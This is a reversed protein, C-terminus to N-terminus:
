VKLQAMRLDLRKFIAEAAMLSLSDPSSLEGTAPPEPEPGESESESEESEAKDKRKGLQAELRPLTSRYIQTHPVRILGDGGEMTEMNGNHLQHFDGYEVQWGMNQDFVNHVGGVVQAEVEPPVALNPSIGPYMPLLNVVSPKMRISEATQPNTVGKGPKSDALEVNQVSRSSSYPSSSATHYGIAPTNHVQLPSKDLGTNSATSQGGLDDPSPMGLLTPMRQSLQFQQQPITHTYQVDQVVFNPVFGNVLQQQVPDEVGMVPMGMNAPPYLDVKHDQVLHSMMSVQGQQAQGMALKLQEREEKFEGVSRELRNIKATMNVVLSELHSIYEKRRLRFHRASVRNRLQRRQRSTLNKAEESALLREDEDMESLKKKVKRGSGGKAGKHEDRSGALFMSDSGLATLAARAINKDIGFDTAEDYVDDGGDSESGGLDVTTNQSKTQKKGGQPSGTDAQRPTTSSPTSNPSRREEVINSASSVLTLCKNQAYKFAAEHAAKAQESTM